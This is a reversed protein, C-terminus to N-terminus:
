PSMQCTALPFRLQGKLSFRLPKPRFCFLVHVNEDSSVAIKLAHFNFLRLNQCRRRKHFLIASKISSRFFRVRSLSRELLPTRRDELFSFSCSMSCAGGKVKTISLFSLVIAHLRQDRTRRTSLNKRYCETSSLISWFVFRSNFPFTSMFFTCIILIHMKITVKTTITTFLITIGKDSQTILISPTIM